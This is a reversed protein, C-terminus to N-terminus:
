ANLFEFTELAQVNTRISQQPNPRSRAVIIVPFAEPHQAVLAFCADVAAVFEAGLGAAQREYWIAAEAINDGAIGAAGADTGPPM